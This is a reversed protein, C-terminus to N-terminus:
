LVDIDQEKDILDFFIELREDLFPRSILSGFQALINVGVNRKVPDDSECLTKAADFIERTGRGRLERIAAWGPDHEADQATLAIPILEEVPKQKLSERYKEWKEWDDDSQQPAESAM